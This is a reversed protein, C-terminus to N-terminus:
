IIDNRKLPIDIGALKSKYIFYFSRTRNTNQKLARVAEIKLAAVHNLVTSSSRDNMEDSILSGSLQIQDGFFLYFLQKARISSTCKCGGKDEQLSPCNFYQYALM